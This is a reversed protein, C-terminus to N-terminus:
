AVGCPAPDAASDDSFTDSAVLYAPRGHPGDILDFKSLEDEGVTTDLRSIPNAFRVSRKGECPSRLLFDVTSMNVLVHCEYHNSYCCLQINSHADTWLSYRSKAFQRRKIKATKTDFSLGTQVREPSIRGRFDGIAM